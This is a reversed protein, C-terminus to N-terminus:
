ALWADQSINEEWKSIVPLTPVKKKKKLKLRKGSGSSGNLKNKEWNDWGENDSVGRQRLNRETEVTKNQCVSRGVEAPHIAQEFGSCIEYVCVCVKELFLDLWSTLELALGLESPGLITWSNNWKQQVLTLFFTGVALLLPKIFQASFHYKPLFHFVKSPATVKHM